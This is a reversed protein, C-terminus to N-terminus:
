SDGNDDQEGYWNCMPGESGCRFCISENPEYAGNLELWKQCAYRGCPKQMEKLM